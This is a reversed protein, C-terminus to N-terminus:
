ADYGWVRLEINGVTAGPIVISIGGPFPIPTQGFNIVLSPKFQAAVGLYTTHTWRYATSGVSPFLSFAWPGAVALTADDYDVQVGVLYSTLSPDAPTHYAFAAAIGGINQAYWFPTGRTIGDAQAKDGTADVIVVPVAYLDNDRDTQMRLSRVSRDLQWQSWDIAKGVQVHPM